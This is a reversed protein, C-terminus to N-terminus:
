LYINRKEEYLHNYNTPPWLGREGCFVISKNLPIFKDLINNPDGYFNTDTADLFMMYEYKGIINDNIYDLLKVTKYYYLKDYYSETQILNTHRVIHIDEANFSKLANKYFKPMWDEPYDFLVTILAINEM